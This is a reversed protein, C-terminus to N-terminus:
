VYGAKVLELYITKIDAPTIVKAIIEAPTLVPVPAPTPPPPTVIATVNPPGVWIGDDVECLPKFQNIYTNLQGLYTLLNPDYAKFLGHFWHYGVRQFTLLDTETPHIKKQYLWWPAAYVTLYRSLNEDPDYPHDLRTVYNMDIWSIFVNLGKDYFWDRNTNNPAALGFPYPMGNDKSGTLQTLGLGNNSGNYANPNFSSERQCVSYLFWRPWNYRACARKIAEDVAASCQVPKFM